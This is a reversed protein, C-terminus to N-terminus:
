YINCCRFFNKCRCPINEILLRDAFAHKKFSFVSVGNANFKDLVAVNNRYGYALRLFKDENNNFNLNSFTLTEVVRCTSNSLSIQTETFGLIYNNIIRRDSVIDDVHKSLSRVNHVLIM